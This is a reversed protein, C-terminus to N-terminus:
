AGSQQPPKSPWAIESTYRTQSEPPEMERASAAVWAVPSGSVATSGVDETWSTPGLTSTGFTTEALVEAVPVAGEEAAVYVEVSGCPVSIACCGAVPGWSGWPGCCVEVAGDGGGYGCAM